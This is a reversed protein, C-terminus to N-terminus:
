NELSFCTESSTDAVPELANPHISQQFFELYDADLGVDRMLPVLSRLIEAVGGGDATSNVHIIRIGKLESALREVRNLQKEPVIGHYDRLRLPQTTPYTVM